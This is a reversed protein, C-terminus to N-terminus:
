LSYYVRLTEMAHNIKALKAADGGRDPHNEFALKRYRKRITNSDVPESLALLALAEDKDHSVSFRTWFSALLEYVDDDSTDRLHNMDLYYAELPDTLQLASEPAQGEHLRIKVASIELEQHHHERVKGRLLYLANFLIFHARFLEPENGLFSGSFREHGREGLRRILDYESIGNPENELIGLLESQFANLCQDKLHFEM